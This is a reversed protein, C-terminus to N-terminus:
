AGGKILLHTEVKGDRNTASQLQTSLRAENALQQKIQDIGSLDSVTLVLELGGDRFALREISIDSNAQLRPAVAALLGIFGGANQGSGRLARLTSEMQARPDIIQKAQPFLERYLQEMQATLQNSERQLQVTDIIVGVGQLLLWTAALAATARWPRWLKSLQENPSYSGQLLNITTQEDYGRVLWTAIPEASREIEVPLALESFDPETDDDQLIVRLQQPPLLEQEQLALKLLLGAHDRDTAFGAFPGTRILLHTQDCLVTWMGPTYPVALIESTILTPALHAQQWQHLFADLATKAVVLAAIREGIPKSLAFHLDEVDAAIQEEVAYSVASYLRQRNRGAGPPLPIDLLTASTGPWLVVIDAGGALATFEEWTSHNITTHFSSEEPRAWTIATNDSTPRAILRTRM